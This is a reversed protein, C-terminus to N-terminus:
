RYDLIESIIEALTPPQEISIALPTHKHEQQPLLPCRLANDYRFILEKSKDQYHYAYMIRPEALTVDIFERFHLEFDDDFRLLGKIFGRLSSRQDIDLSVQTAQGGALLADVTDSISPVYEHFSNAPM